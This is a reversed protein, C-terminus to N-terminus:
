VWVSRLIPFALARHRPSPFSLSVISSVAFARRRVPWAVRLTKSSWLGALWYHLTRITIFLVTRNSLTKLCGRTFRLSLQPPPPPPPTRQLNYLKQKRKFVCKRYLCQYNYRFVAREKNTFQYKSRYEPIPANIYYSSIKTKNVTAVAIHFIDHTQSWPWEFDTWSNQIAIRTKGYSQMRFIPISLLWQDDDVVFVGFQQWQFRKSLCVVIADSYIYDQSQHYCAYIIPHRYEQKSITSYVPLESPQNAESQTTRQASCLPQLRKMILRPSM